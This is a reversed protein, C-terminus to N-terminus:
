GSPGSRLEPTEFSSPRALDFLQTARAAPIDGAVPEFGLVRLTGDGASMEVAVRTAWNHVPPKLWDFPQKIAGVCASLAERRERSDLNVPGGCSRPEWGHRAQQWDNAVVFPREDVWAQTETREIVCTDGRRTGALAILVPRAMPLRALMEKAGAYDTATEFVQRLMHAPPAFRVRAYTRIANAAYDIWRLVEGRTRRYLPAQNITAAFRGPAVATLVGVAGPWTVNWFEGARGSQRAVTLGRGLGAFPWDLTRVLIPVDGCCAATCGWEYATNVLFVGPRGTLRAIEMVEAKYPSTSRELWIRAVADGLPVLSRAPAPLYALCAARLEEMAERRAAAHAVPGGIRVDVFPIEPLESM